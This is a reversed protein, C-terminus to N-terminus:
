GNCGSTRRCHARLLSLVRENEEIFSFSGSRELFELEVCGQEFERQLDPYLARDHRGALVKVPVSIEKLRPRFDPISLLQGGIDFDVDKGCFVPYLETNRAGPETLLRSANEPNYFRVLATARGFLAQMEPSTSVEGQARIRQIAAWVEPLQCRIVHNINDHNKQWMQPSHLSNCLLLSRVSFPEDLTVQLSILGGYSFGFLHAGDPCLQKILAKVDLVDEAFTIDTLSGPRDSRGRGYLDVYIVRFDRHLDDFHPHFIAHSGAPGLGALLVLPEGEGCQEVWLRKGRVECLTGPAHQICVQGTM